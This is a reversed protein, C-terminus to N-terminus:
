SIKFNSADDFSTEKEFSHDLFIIAIFYTKNWNQNNFHFKEFFNIISINVGIELRRKQWASLISLYWIKVSFKNGQTERM